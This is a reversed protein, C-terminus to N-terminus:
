QHMLPESSLIFRRQHSVMEGKLHELHRAIQHAINKSGDLLSRFARRSQESHLAVEIDDRTDISFNGCPSRLLQMTDDSTPSAHTSNMVTDPEDPMMCQTVDDLPRGGCKEIAVATFFLCLCHSILILSHRWPLKRTVIDLLQRMSTLLKAWLDSQICIRM